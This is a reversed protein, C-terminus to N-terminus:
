KKTKWSIRGSEQPYERVVTSIIEKGPSSSYSLGEKKRYWNNIHKLMEGATKYEGQSQYHQIFEEIIQKLKETTKIKHVMAFPQFNQKLFKEVEDAMQSRDYVFNIEPMDFIQTSYLLKIKRNEISYNESLLDNENKTLSGKVISTDKDKDKDKDKLGEITRQHVKSPGEDEAFMLHQNEIPSSEKNEKSNSILNSDDRTIYKSDFVQLDKIGKLLKIPVEGEVIRKIAGRHAPNKPNLKTGYQFAIFGTLLWRSNDLKILRKQIGSICDANVNLLFEEQNIPNKFLLEYTQVNVKWIGACDCKDKIYLFFHQHEKPMAIFWDEEWIETSHHRIPM